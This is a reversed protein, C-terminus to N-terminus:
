MKIIKQTRVCKGDVSFRLIYLGKSFNTLDLQTVSDLLQLQQIKKGFIDYLECNYVGQKAVIAPLEVSCVGSTPNPYVKVEGLEYEEVPLPRSIQVCARNNGSNPDTASGVIHVEYCIPFATMNYEDMLEATYLPAPMEIICSDGTQVDQLDRGLVSIHSVCTEYCFIDFRVTDTMAPVGPGNNKLRVRLELDTTPMFGLNQTIEDQSDLFGVLEYDVTQSKVCCIMLLFIFFIVIKKM